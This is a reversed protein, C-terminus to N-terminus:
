THPKFIFADQLMKTTDAVQYPIPTSPDCTDGMHSSCKVKTTELDTKMLGVYDELEASPFDIQNRYYLAKSCMYTDYLQLKCNIANIAVQIHATLLM